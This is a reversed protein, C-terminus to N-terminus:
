QGLWYQAREPVVWRIGGRPDDVDGEYRPIVHLHLHEVTQGAARGINIGLNFSTTGLEQQLKLSLSTGLRWIDDLEDETLEELATIHRQPVVLLHGRTLPYADPFAVASGNSSTFDGADIRLCFPCSM